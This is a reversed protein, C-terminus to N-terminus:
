SVRNLLLPSSRTYTTGDRSTSDASSSDCRNRRRGVWRNPWKRRARAPSIPRATRPSWRGGNRGQHSPCSRRRLWRRQGELAGVAEIRARVPAVQYPYLGMELIIQDTTKGAAIRRRYFDDLPQFVTLDEAEEIPSRYAALYAAEKEEERKRAELERRNIEDLWNRDSM